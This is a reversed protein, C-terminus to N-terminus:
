LLEPRPLWRPKPRPGQDRGRGPQLWYGFHALLATGYDKLGDTVFLPVWGAAFVAAVQPVVRQAMALTRTGVEIVLLLKNEPDMANLSSGRNCDM